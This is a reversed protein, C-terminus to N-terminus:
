YIQTFGMENYNRIAYHMNTNVTKVTISIKIFAFQLILLIVSKGEKIYLTNKIQLKSQIGILNLNFLNKVSEMNKM